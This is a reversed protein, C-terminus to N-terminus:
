LMVVLRIGDICPLADVIDVEVHAPGDRVGTAGGGVPVPGHQDLV